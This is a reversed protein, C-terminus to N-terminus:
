ARRRFVRRLFGAAEVALREKEMVLALAYIGFFAIASVALSLFNGLTFNRATVDALRPGCLTGAALSGAAGAAAALLIKGCSIGQFIMRRWEGLSLYQVALVAAEAFLTGLAAGAAGMGPILALNLVLDTVAGAVGSLLMSKERGLPVLVQNGIINTMGIFLLAPMIIRMAGVAGGYSPGNLLGIAPSAYMIFYVAMPVAAVLVFNMAKRGTERFKDMEGQAVYYSARPMLVSGIAGVIYTLATKIRLAADYYGVESEPSMFGLMVTDLQTYITTSCNIAFFILLQRVHRAPRFGRLRERGPMLDIYKGANFLSCLGPGYVALVTVVCYFIYDGRDRVMLFMAAIAIGKFILSRVTIYAYRELGKYMWEIGIAGLPIALGAVLYLARESRLGPLLFSAAFIGAYAALSTVLSVALLEHVTRTLGERDDQVRACARIGYIPVGAQAFLNFCSALSTAFAVKGMGEPLLVRSVYPTTILPFLVNSIGLIANMIFNSTVSTKGAKEM